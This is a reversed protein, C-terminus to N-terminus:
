QPLKRLGKRGESLYLRLTSAADQTAGTRTFAQVTRGIAYVAIARQVLDNDTSYRTGLMMYMLTRQSTDLGPGGPPPMGLIRWVKSCLLYHEIRDESHECGLVCGGVRAANMRASTPWGNWITRFLYALVCPRCKDGIIVMNRLIRGTVHAAPDQFKWRHTKKRLRNEACYPKLVTRILEYACSQFSTLKISLQLERRIREATVGCQRMSNQNRWLAAYFSSNHWKGFPRCLHDSQVKRLEEYKSAFDKTVTDVMRLKAAKAVCEIDKLAYRFGYATLNHLDEATAWNGPGPALKRLAQAISKLIRESPEMLQAVYELVTIIYINYVVINLALGLHKASWHLVRQEFKKLPKNWSEEGAGPGVIFGLYKGRDAVQMSGWAPCHEKILTQVNRDSGHPWLPIAVTKKINISLGSIQEFEAFVNRLVPLTTWMNEIVAGIDDAFATVTGGQGIVAAIRSILGDVCIAFLLGSLPCGQRVGSKVTVGPFLEGRVKLLHQNNIYFTRIVKIFAPCIGLIDLADWMMDHSLSPFAATFDFLLLAGSKCRISVKQAALDIDLVNKVMQRKKLFGKQASNIRQGICLELCSCFISALIRNSADVISIPRTNEPSIVATGDSTKCTESKAFCIMFALNFSDDPSDTGDLMANAVALFIDVATDGARKYVAFPIRDPGAASDACEQIVRRVMKRTPRLQHTDAKFKNRFQELWAKRMTSNTAKHEFTKQWHTNLIGAIGGTDTTTRGSADMMAAIESSGGPTMSRLIIEISRKRQELIHEPLQARVQRLEDAREKVEMHMLEEARNLINGFGATMELGDDVQYGRLETVTCQIQRARDLNGQRVAKIFSLHAALKHEKTDAVESRCKRRIYAATNSASQKLLRLQEFPTPAQNTEACFSKVSWNFQDQLEQIFDRHETVWAPMPKHQRAKKQAFFVSLPRHDSLHRPHLLLNSATHMLNIDISHLNTYVRDIRSWGFSNECTMQDQAFEQLRLRVCIDRWYESNKRDPFNAGNAECTKSIRDDSCMTFNFDGLVLNHANPDCVEVLKQMQQNRKKWSGPDLYVAYIHLAGKPGHLELRGLWGKELVKWDVTAFEELFKDKVIIAVGGRYQSCCTTKVLLGQPLANALFTNRGPTERTEVFVGVDHSRMLEKVYDITETNDYAYLSRTNWGVASFPRAYKLSNLAKRPPKNPGEAEGTGLGATTCAPPEHIGGGQILLEGTKCGFAPSCDGM